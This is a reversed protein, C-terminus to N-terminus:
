SRSKKLVHHLGFYAIVGCADAIWDYVDAGRGPAYSQAVEIAL